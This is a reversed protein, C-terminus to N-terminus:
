RCAGDKPAPNQETFVLNGQGQRLFASLKRGAERESTLDSPLPLRLARYLDNRHLDFASQFLTVYSLAASLSARYAAVSLLAFVATGAGWLWGPHMVLGVAASVATAALVYVLRVTLDLQLRQDAVLDRMEDSLLPYLRPWVIVPDLGYRDGIGDEGARLVNGLATPMLRKRDSPYRHHVAFAAQQARRLAKPDNPDDVNQRDDLAKLHARHADIRRQTLRRWLIVDPWYGELLRTLSLQLPGLLLTLFVAGGLIAFGPVNDTKGFLLKGLTTPDVVTAVVLALLSSPLLGILFFRVGLQKLGEEFLKM